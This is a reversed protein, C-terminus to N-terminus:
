MCCWVGQLWLVAGAAMRGGRLRCVFCLVLRVRCGCCMAGEVGAGHPGKSQDRELVRPKLHRCALPRAGAHARSAACRPAIFRPLCGLVSPLRSTCEAQLLWIECRAASRDLAAAVLLCADQRVGALEVAGHRLPVPGGPVPLWLHHGAAAHIHPPPHSGTVVLGQQRANNTAGEPVHLRRASGEVDAWTGASTGLDSVCRRCRQRREDGRGARGSVHENTLVM